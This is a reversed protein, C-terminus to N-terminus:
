RQSYILLKGLRNIAELVNTEHVFEQVRKKECM